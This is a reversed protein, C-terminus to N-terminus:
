RRWGSQEPDLQWQQDFFGAGIVGDIGETLVEPGAIYWDPYHVGSVFYTFRDTLRCGPLGTGSVAAVLSDPDQANPYAFVCALDDGNLTRDGCTLEGRRVQIPSDALVKSWALNTDANGYLIVNRGSFAGLNYEVDSIIDVSGNGRYFFTEADCRAKSLNWLAEEGSGRTGYVFVMRNRFADKFPGSRGIRKEDTPPGSSRTWGSGDRVLHILGDNRAGLDCEIDSGDLSIVISTTEQSEGFAERLLPGDFAIRRINVTSGTVHRSGLVLNLDVSSALLSRQQQEIIVWQSRSSISPNASIFQVHRVHQPSPRVHNRFFDFMPPWDVCPSGWWHGAGAREYYAFDAHYTALHSRMQRAQEVPVNDDADGHLIYVGLTTLNKMRAITDYVNTARRLMSLPGATEEPRPAGAYSFFSAWGASPSATAFQGPFMTGFVWTGHGGMSHGTVHMRAPDVAPFEALAANLAELGDLMGWDEWDFGYPRRNTPAAVHAWDLSPYCAAQGAGEVSAGHLSLILARADVNTAPNLAVYQVSGDIDSVYTSKRRDSARRANVKLDIDHAPKGTSGILTLRLTQEGPETITAHPVRFAVKRQSVPLMPPLETFEVAGDLRAEIQLNELPSETNNSVIIAGMAPADAGIVLDPLTLDAADLSIYNAPESLAARLEGRGCSFLFENDGKKILVPLRSYGLAYPDGMRPEGNVLVAAHASASLIMVRQSDSSLTALAYGGRLASHRLTGDDAAAAQEWARAQGEPNSIERGAAPSKWAGTVIAYNVADTNFPRRASKGVDGIVLASKVLNIPERKSEIVKREAPKNDTTPAPAPNLAHAHLSVVAVLAIAANQIARPACFLTRTTM